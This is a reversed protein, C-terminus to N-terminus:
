HNRHPTLSPLHGDSRLLTAISKVHDIESEKSVLASSFALRPRFYVWLKASQGATPWGPKVPLPNEFNSGEPNEYRALRQKLGIPFHAASNNIINKRQNELHVL